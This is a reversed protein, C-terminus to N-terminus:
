LEFARHLANAATDLDNEDILVSITAHSDAVQLIDIGEAQLSEAVKAMVGPVGHMGSGVLTVKCLRPRLAVEFSNEALIQSAVVANNADVTFVLRDNMPTFMDISIGKDAMLRYAITQMQMHKDPDDKAYALRVRLRAIGSVTSIATAVKEPRYDDMSVVETGLEESFTSRVRMKVGSQLALEAAPAHIVRSGHKAMQFLEDATISKIASADKILRPDASFVGNVDTYIDVRKAGLAM